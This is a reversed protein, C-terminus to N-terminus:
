APDLGVGFPEPEDGAGDQQKDAAIQSKGTTLGPRVASDALIEDQEDAPIDSRQQEGDDKGHDPMSKHAPTEDTGDQQRDGAGGEASDDKAGKAASDEQQELDESAKASSEKHETTSEKDANETSQSVDASKATENGGADKQSAGEKAVIVTDKPLREEALKQMIEAEDDATLEANPYKKQYEEIKAQLRQLLSAM